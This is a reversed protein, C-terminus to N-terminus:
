GVCAAEESSPCSVVWVTPPSPAPLPVGGSGEPVREPEGAARAYGSDVQEDVRM